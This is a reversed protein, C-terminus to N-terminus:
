TAFLFFLKIKNKGSLLRSFMLKKRSILVFEATFSITYNRQVFSPGTREKTHRTRGYLHLHKARKAASNGQMCILHRRRLQNPIISYSFILRSLKWISFSQMIHVLKHSWSIKCWLQHLNAGLLASYNSLGEKLFCCVMTISNIISGDVDQYSDEFVAVLLSCLLNKNALERKFNSWSVTGFIYGIITDGLIEITSFKLTLHEPLM